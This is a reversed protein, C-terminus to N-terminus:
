TSGWASRGHISLGYQDTIEGLLEGFGRSVDERWRVRTDPSIQLMLSHKALDGRSHTSWHTWLVSVHNNSVVSAARYTTGASSRSRVPEIRVSKQQRQGVIGALLGSMRQRFERRDGYRIPADAVVGDYTM